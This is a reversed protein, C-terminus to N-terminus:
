SLGLILLRNVHTANGVFVKKKGIKRDFRCSSGGGGRLKEQLAHRLEARAGFKEKSGYNPLASMPDKICERSHPLAVDTETGEELASRTASLQFHPELRKFEGNRTSYVLVQINNVATSGAPARAYYWNKFAHNPLEYTARCCCCDTYFRSQEEAAKDLFVVAAAIAPGAHVLHRRPCRPSFRLETARTEVKPALPLSGITSFRTCPVLVYTTFHPTFFFVQSCHM